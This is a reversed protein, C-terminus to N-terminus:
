TLFTMNSQLAQLQDDHSTMTEGKFVGLTYRHILNFHETSPYHTLYPVYSVVLNFKLYIEGKLEQDKFENTRRMLEGAVAAYCETISDKKIDSMSPRLNDPVLTTDFVDKYQPSFGATALSWM